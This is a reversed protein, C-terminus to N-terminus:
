MHLSINSHVFTHCFVLNYKPLTVIIKSFKVKLGENSLSM